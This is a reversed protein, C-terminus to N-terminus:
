ALDTVPKRNQLEAALPEMDTGVQLRAALTINHREPGPRITARGSSERWQAGRIMVCLSRIMTQCFYSTSPARDPGGPDDSRRSSGGRRVGGPVERVSDLVKGKRRRGGLGRERKKTSLFRLPTFHESRPSLGPFLSVDQSLQDVRHGHLVELSPDKLSIPEKKRVMGGSHM